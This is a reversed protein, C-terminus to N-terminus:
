DPRSFRARMANGLLKTFDQRNMHILQEHDGAEFYIDDQALLTEDVITEVQYLTGAPPIAGVACDGFLAGVEAETALGLRRDLLHHLEGLHLRHTAPLVALLYGQEDKLLVSKAVKHGTQHAAAAARQSSETYDHSVVSYHLPHSELYARLSMAMAM